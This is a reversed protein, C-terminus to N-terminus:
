KNPKVYFVLRRKHLCNVQLIFRRLLRITKPMFAFPFLGLFLMVMKKSFHSHNIRM